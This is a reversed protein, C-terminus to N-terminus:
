SRSIWPNFAGYMQPPSIPKHAPPDTLDPSSIVAEYIAHPDADSLLSHDKPTTFRILELALDALRQTEVNNDLFGAELFINLVAGNRIGKDFLDKARHTARDPTDAKRAAIKYINLAPADEPDEDLLADLATLADKPRDDRLFCNARLRQTSHDSPDDQLLAECQRRATTVDGTEFLARAMARKADRCLDAPASQDAVLTEAFNIVTRHDSISALGDLYQRKLDPSCGQKTVFAGLMEIQAAAYISGDPIRFQVRM